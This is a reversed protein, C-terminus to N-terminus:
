KASFFHHQIDTHRCTVVAGPLLSSPSRLARYTPPVDM